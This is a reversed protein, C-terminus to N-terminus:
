AKGGELKLIASSSLHRSSRRKAYHEVMKLSQGTVSATEAISCGAELLAIVANKRLGHPVIDYGRASAFAQLHDRLTDEKMPLGSQDALITMGRRPTSALLTVLDRHVRVELYKDTKEQTLHVFGDRIDTWRLACTDGIRQALYYLLATPLAIAPEAALAAVLLEEPWPKYDESAFLVIGKCPDHEVHERSRGWKYLARMTRIMGNAAGTRDAMTDRLLLVDGRELGRAPAPALQDAILRLYTGYASQTAPKLARFEPSREYLDIMQPLKLESAVKARRTRGAMLSAYVSGFTPDARDPLRALIPKGNAKKAGTDFYDYWRGKAKVPKVYLLKGRRM